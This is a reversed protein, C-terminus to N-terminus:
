PSQRELTAVNVCYDHGAWMRSNEFLRAHRVTPARIIHFHSGETWVIRAEAEPGFDDTLVLREGIRKGQRDLMSTREVVRGQTMYERLLRTASSSSGREFCGYRLFGGDSSYYHTQFASTEIGGSFTIKSFDTEGTKKLADRKVEHIVKRKTEPRKRSTQASASRAFCAVLTLLTLSCTFLVITQKRPTLM